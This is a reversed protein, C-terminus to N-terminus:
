VELEPPTLPAGKKDYVELSYFLGKRLIVVHTASDHDDHELSDIEKGPIRTTSFMREYQAMCMPVTDRIIM